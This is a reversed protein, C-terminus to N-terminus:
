RHRCSLGAPLDLRSASSSEKINADSLATEASALLRAIERKGAAHAKLKGTRLLNDLTM